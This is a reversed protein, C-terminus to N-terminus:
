RFNPLRPRCCPLGFSTSRPSTAPTQRVIPAAFATAQTNIGNLDTGTGGGNLLQGEEVYMLGYRLRGDIYSQLQPVDDLIQKTALVYHAITTVM